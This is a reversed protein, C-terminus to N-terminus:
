KEDWTLLLESNKYANGVVKCGFRIYDDLTYEDNGVDVIFSNENDISVVYNGSGCSVIDGEYIPTGDKTFRNSFRMLVWNNEENISIGDEIYGYCFHTERELNYESDHKSDWQSMSIDTTMYKHTKQWARYLPPM